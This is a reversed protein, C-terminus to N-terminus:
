KKVCAWIITPQSLKNEYVADIKKQIASGAEECRVQSTFETEQITPADSKIIIFVLIWIM